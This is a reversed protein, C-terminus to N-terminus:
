RKVWLVDIRLSYILLQIIATLTFLMSVIEVRKAVKKVVKRCHKLITGAEVEIVLPVDEVKTM